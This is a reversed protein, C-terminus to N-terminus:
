GDAGATESSASAAHAAVPASELAVSARWSVWWSPQQQANTAIAMVDDVASLDDLAHLDVLRRLFVAIGLVREGPSWIERLALWLGNKDNVVFTLTPDTAALAISAREGLDKPTPVPGVLAALTAHAPSGIEIARVEIGSADFWREFVGRRKPDKRLEKRVEAVIAMACIGAAKALDEKREAQLFYSVINTDLLYTM